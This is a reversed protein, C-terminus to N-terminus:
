IQLLRSQQSTKHRNARNFHALSTTNAWPTQLNDRQFQISDNRVLPRSQCCSYYVYARSFIVPVHKELYKDYLYLVQFRLTEWCKLSLEQFTVNIRCFHFQFLLLQHQFVMATIQSFCLVLFWVQIRSRTRVRSMQPGKSKFFFFLIIKARPTKLYFTFIIDTRSFLLEQMNLKQTFPSLPLYFFHHSLVTFHLLANVETGM